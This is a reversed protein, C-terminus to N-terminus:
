AIKEYQYRNGGTVNSDPVVTKKWHTTDADLDAQTANFYMIGGIRSSMSASEVKNCLHWIIYNFWQRGMPQGKLLGTRQIEIPPIVRSPNGSPDVDSSAWELVDTTAM